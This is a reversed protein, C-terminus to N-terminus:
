ENVNQLPLRIHLEGIHECRSKDTGAAPREMGAALGGRGTTGTATTGPLAATGAVVAAGARGAATAMGPAGTTDDDGRALLEGAGKGVPEPLASTVAFMTFFLFFLYSLFTSARM